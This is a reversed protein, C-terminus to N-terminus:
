LTEWHYFNFRLRKNADKALLIAYDKGRYKATKQLLSRSIDSGNTVYRYDKAINIFHKLLDTYGATQQITM